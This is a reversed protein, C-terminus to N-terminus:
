LRLNHTKTNSSYRQSGCNGGTDMIMPIFAVLILITAANIEKLKNKLINFKKEELLKKIEETEM